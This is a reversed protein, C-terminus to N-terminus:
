WNSIRGPIPHSGPTMTPCSTEQYAMSPGFKEAFIRTLDESPKKDEKLPIFYDTKSFRDIVVGLETYNNSQLLDTIVNITISQWPAYPVDLPSLLGYRRHHRSEDRQCDPYTQIYASINTDM